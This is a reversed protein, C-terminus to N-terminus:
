LVAKFHEWQNKQSALFAIFQSNKRLPNLNPDREFLPYCPFGKDASQELYKLALEPKNMLAYASAIIYATHHFHTYGEERALVARISAEARRKDGEAAMLLAEMGNLLGGKDQPYKKLFEEVRRRADERNGLQFLAYATQFAWLPPNFRQSDRIALLSDEYRGRYLLNIGVRFRASSNLPDLAVAKESEASAKDLLGVHNYVNALQHHAEALSPNLALARRYDRVAPEHAFHNSASWLLFGRAVYAEALNPDLRLAKEVAASAKQEWEKERPEISFARIRYATALATHAVAFNPDLAVAKELLRIATENEEETELGFYPRAQLYDDYAESQVPRGRALRTQEQPLVKIRIEGAIARSVESQLALVDSLDREYSHAWLHRDSPARVLQATIRVRNASRIVTGEVVADVNLEKAIQPLPKQAKKYQMVSTRSIVRLASIQALDTILADTMGDAFYEQAPDASLNELPLVALSRIPPSAVSDNSRRSAWFYALAAAVLVLPISFALVPSSRRKPAAANVRLAEEPEDVVAPSPSRDPATSDRGDDRFERVTAVFRYGRKPVTEIYKQEDPTEGLAKRLLFINQSLNGEEVFTDPWLTKMMEEKGLMHGSNSVLLLLTEFAKPNLPVVEGQRLLLREVADIRFPGFEYFHKAPRTM